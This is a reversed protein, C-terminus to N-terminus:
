KGSFKSILSSHRRHQQIMNVEQTSQHQDSAAINEDENVKDINMTSALSFQRGLGTCGLVEWDFEAVAASRQHIESKENCPISDNYHPLFSDPTRATTAPSWPTINKWWSDVSSTTSAISFEAQGLAEGWNFESDASIRKAVPDHTGVNMKSKKNCHILYNSDPLFSDPTRADDTTSPSSSFSRRGSQQVANTRTHTDNRPDESAYDQSQNVFVFDPVRKKSALRTDDSHMFPLQTSSVAASVNGKLQQPPLLQGGQLWATVRASEMSDSLSIAHHPPIRRQNLGFPTPPFYSFLNFNKSDKEEVTQQPGKLINKSDYNPQTSTTDTDKETIEQRYEVADERLAQGVKKGAKEDGIEIWCGSKEDKRLFRGPKNQTRIKAVIQACIRAKEIKTTTQNLYQSKRESVMTRLRVNGPHSNIYGGRGCLVDNPSPKTIPGGFGPLIKAPPPPFSVSDSRNIMPAINVYVTSRM